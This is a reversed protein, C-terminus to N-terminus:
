MIPKFLGAAVKGDLWFYTVFGITLWECENEQPERLTLKM